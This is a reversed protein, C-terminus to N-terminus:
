WNVKVKDAKVEPIEVKVNKFLIGTRDGDQRLLAVNYMGKEMKYFPIDAHFGPAFYYQKLFLQKRSKNRTREAPFV